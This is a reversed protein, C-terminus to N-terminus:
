TGMNAVARQKENAKMPIVLKHGSAKAGALFLSSVNSTGSHRISTHRM